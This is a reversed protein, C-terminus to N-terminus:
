GFDRRCIRSWIERMMTYWFANRHKRNEASNGHLGHDIATERWFVSQFRNLKRRLLKAKYHNDIMSRVLKATSIVFYIHKNSKRAYRCLQCHLTAYKARISITTEIHPFRRYNHLTKMHERKDYIKIETKGPTSQFIDMDLFHVATGSQEEVISITNPRLGGNGNTVMKPYMGGLIGDDTIVDSLELEDKQGIHATYIDDIFRKTGCGFQKILSIPYLPQQQPPTNNYVKIMQTLFMFEHFYAFYNALAPAPSTGMFIGSKQKYMNAGFQVQSEDLIFHIWTNM